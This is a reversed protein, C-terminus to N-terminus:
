HDHAHGTDEPVEVGVAELAQRGRTQCDDASCTASETFQWAPGDLRYVYEIGQVPGGHPEHGFPVPLQEELEHEPTLMYLQIKATAPGFLGHERSVIIEPVIPTDGYRARLKELHQEAEAHVSRELRYADVLHVGAGLVTLALVAILIKTRM